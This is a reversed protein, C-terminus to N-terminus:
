NIEENNLEISKIAINKLSNKLISEEILNDQNLVEEEWNHLIKISKELVEEGKQTLSIKNQRRNESDIERVILEKDELKKIARAIAGKNVNCRSAIKEQNINKQHSLEFLIHLQSANIDLDKLHHNLYIVHSRAIMSVLKGIPLTSADMIKFEELSM